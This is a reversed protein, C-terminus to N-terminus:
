HRPRFLLHIRRGRLRHQSVGLSAHADIYIPEEVLEIGLLHIPGQPLHQVEALAVIRQYIAQVTSM